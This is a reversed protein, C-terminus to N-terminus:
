RTVESDNAQLVPSMREITEVTAIIAVFSGNKRIKYRNNVILATMRESERPQELPAKKDYYENIMEYFKRYFEHPENYPMVLAFTTNDNCKLLAGHDFIPHWYELNLIRTIERFRERSKGFVLARELMSLYAPLESWAKVGFDRKLNDICNPQAMCWAQEYTGIPQMAM